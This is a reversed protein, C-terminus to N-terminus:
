GVTFPASASNRGDLVYVPYLGPAVNPVTFNVAYNGQADSTTRAGTDSQDFWVQLADNAPFGGGSAQVQSGVPGQNPQLTVSVGASAPSIYGVLSLALLMITSLFVVASRKQM